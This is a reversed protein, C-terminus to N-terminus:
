AAKRETNDAAEAVDLDIYFEENTDCIQIGVNAWDVHVHKTNDAANEQQRAYALIADKNLEPDKKRLFMEQLTKGLTNQIAVVCAAFTWKKLPKVSDPSKRFSVSGHTLRRTKKGPEFINIRNTVCYEEISKKLYDRQLNLPKSIDELDSKLKDIERQKPACEVALKRDIEKIEAIARDCDDLSTLPNTKPAKEKKSAM